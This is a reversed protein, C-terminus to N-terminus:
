NNLVLSYQNPCCATSVQGRLHDQGRLHGRNAKQVADISLFRITDICLQDVVSPSFTCPSGSKQSRVATPKANTM